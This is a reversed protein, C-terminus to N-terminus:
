YLDGLEFSQSGSLNMLWLKKKNKKKLPFNQCVLLIKILIINIYQLIFSSADSSTVKPEAEYERGDRQM